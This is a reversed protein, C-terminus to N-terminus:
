CFVVFLSMEEFKTKTKIKRHLISHLFCFRLIKILKKIAKFTLNQAEKSERIKKDSSIQRNISQRFFKTIKAFVVM